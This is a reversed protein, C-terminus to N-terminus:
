SMLLRSLVFGMRVLLGVRVMRVGLVRLVMVGFRFLAVMLSM